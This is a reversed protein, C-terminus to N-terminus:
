PKKWVNVVFISTLLVAVYGSSIASALAPNQVVLVAYFASVIIIAAAVMLRLNRNM